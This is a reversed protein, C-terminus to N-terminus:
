GRVVRKRCPLALVRAGYTVSAKYVVCVAIDPRLKGHYQPTSVSVVACVAVFVDEGGPAPLLLQQLWGLVSV